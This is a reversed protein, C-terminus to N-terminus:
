VVSLWASPQGNSHLSAQRLIRPSTPPHARSDQLQDGVHTASRSTVVRLGMVDVVCGIMSSARLLLHRRSFM